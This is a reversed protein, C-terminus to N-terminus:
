PAQLRYRDVSGITGTTFSASSFLNKKVDLSGMSKNGNRTEGGGEKEKKGGGPSPPPPPPPFTQLPLQFPQASFHRRSVSIAVQM